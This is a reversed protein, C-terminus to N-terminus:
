PNAEGYLVDMGNRGDELKQYEFSHNHYAYTLGHKKALEAGKGLIKAADRYGALTGKQSIKWDPPGSVVISYGLAKADDANKKMNDETGDVGVHGSVAKLGLKDIIKRVDSASRGFLGAFEVNQYGIKAVQALTGELDKEMQDRVTYLQLAIPISM